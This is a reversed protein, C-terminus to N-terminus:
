PVKAKTQSLGPSSTGSSVNVRECEDHDYSRRAVWGVVDLCQLCLVCIVNRLRACVETLSHVKLRRSHCLLTSEGLDIEASDSCSNDDDDKDDNIDVDKVVFRYLSVYILGM